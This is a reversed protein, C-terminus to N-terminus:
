GGIKDLYSDFTKGYLGTLRFAESYLTKGEETSRAVALAFRPGVRFNQNAYFDGGSPKGGERRMCANYFAFFEEKAILGLDLARRAIVLPSVKFKRGLNSYRDRRDRVGPWLSRMVRGPVLFEAAIRNCARETADNAPSMGRLDFAASQGLLVHALEHALTFMQASKSDANNVFILPAYEDILVFGRFETVDLKRNNNNGVVGNSFVLIGIDDIAQRLTSLSESWNKCCEAWQEDFGLLERIVRAVATAREGRKVSGVFPLPDFGEDILDDRMWAQRRQMTYVTDLLNPSPRGVEDDRITRFHPIPLKEEPPTSLFMSGFPTHTAKAFDELQNFTPNKEGSLWAPLKPFKAALEEESRGSRTLAWSLIETKVAVEPM